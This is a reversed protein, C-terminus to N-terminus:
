FDVSKRLSAISKKVKFYGKARTGAKEETLQVEKELIVIGSEELEKCYLELNHNLIAEKEEKSREKKQFKYRKGKYEGFFIPLKFNQNIKLQSEESSAEYNETEPKRIGLAIHYGFLNLYVQKQRKNTYVKEQYITECLDEYPLIVEAYVDADAARHDERIVEGADNKVEVTGSVLLDGAKVADGEKVCPVGKRTVIEVIMGEETAVLDAPNSETQSVQFTDTSEKVQVIINCGELSASVWIIENFNKRIGTNIKECDVSSRKMGHFVGTTELYEILTEDTIRQNGKVDIKWIFRSCTFIISLCLFIGIFFVKRRRYKHFFFPVGYRELITIKTKTKKLIPKLKRFGDVTIYMEYADAKAELGWMEIEKHKCLNLFREPSYGSIRIKVYGRLENGVEKLM